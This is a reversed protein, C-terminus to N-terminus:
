EVGVGSTMRFSTSTSSTRLASKGVAVKKAIFSASTPDVLPTGQVDSDMVSPIRAPTPNRPNVSVNDVSGGGGCGLSALIAIAFALAVVQKTTRVDAINQLRATM